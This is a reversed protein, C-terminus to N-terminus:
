PPERGVREQSSRNVAPISVKWEYLEGRMVDAQVMPDTEVIQRAEELSTALFLAVSGSADAFPVGRILKGGVRLQEMYAAHNGAELQDKFLAGEQWNAGKSFLVLYRSREPNAQATQQM